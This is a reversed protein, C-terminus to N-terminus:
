GVFPCVLDLSRPLREACFISMRPCLQRPSSGEALREHLIGCRIQQRVFLVIPFLCHPPGMTDPLRGHRRAVCWNCCHERGSLLLTPTSITFSLGLPGPIDRARRAAQDVFSQGDKQLFLGGRVKKVQETRTGLPTYAGAGPVQYTCATHLNINLLPASAYVLRSFTTTVFFFISHVLPDTCAVVTVCLCRPLRQKRWIEDWACLKASNELWDKSIYKGISVTTTM